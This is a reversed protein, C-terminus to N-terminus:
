LPVGIITAPPVERALAVDLATNWASQRATNQSHETSADYRINIARLRPLHQAKANNPSTGRLIDAKMRRAVLIALDLHGQEHRLLAGNQDTDSEVKAFHEVTIDVTLNNGMSSWDITISGGAEADGDEIDDEGVVEFDNWDLTSKTVTINVERGM